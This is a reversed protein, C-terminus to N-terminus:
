LPMTVSHRLKACMIIQPRVCLCVSAPVYLLRLVLRARAFRAGPQYFYWVKNSYYCISFYILHSSYLLTSPTLEETRQYVTIM